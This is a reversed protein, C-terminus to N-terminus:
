GGDITARDKVSFTVVDNVRFDKDTGVNIDNDGNSFDAALLCAKTAAPTFYVAGSSGTLATASCAVPM